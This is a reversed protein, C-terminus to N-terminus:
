SVRVRKVYEIILGRLADWRLQVNWGLKDAAQVREAVNYFLYPQEKIRDKPLAFMERREPAEVADRLATFRRLLHDYPTKRSTM